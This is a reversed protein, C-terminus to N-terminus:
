ARRAQEPQDLEAYEAGLNDVTQAHRYPDELEEFIAIGRQYAVIAEDFRRVERLALGLNNWAQGEGHLDGLERYIDGARQHATIAEDFRWVQRLALGLNNWVTAEGHLDGLERYIYGTRGHATIAEDFRRVEALAVGLNNWAQGEGHRDGVERFLAGAQQHATIAEDFRRAQQLANGFNNWTAAAYGRGLTDAANVATSAVTVGDALLRARLLFPALDTALRVADDPHTTAARVICAVLGAREALVWAMADQPTAFGAPVRDEDAPLTTFRREALEATHQYHALVRDFGVIRKDPTLHEAAYLRILDHM